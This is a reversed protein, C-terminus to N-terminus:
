NGALREWARLAPLQIFEYIASDPPAAFLQSDLPRSAQSSLSLATAQAAIGRRGYQFSVENGREEMKRVQQVCKKLMAEGILPPKFSGPQPPSGTQLSPAIAAFSPLQYALHILDRHLALVLSGLNPGGSALSQGPTMKSQTSGLM